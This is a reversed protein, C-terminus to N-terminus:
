AQGTKLEFQAIWDVRQEVKLPHVKKPDFIKNKGSSSKESSIDASTEIHVIPPEMKGDVVARMIDFKSM